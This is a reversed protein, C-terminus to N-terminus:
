KIQEILELRKVISNKELITGPSLVANAGIKSNDGVLSGFKETKTDIIQNKYKVSIQKEKRENYHNACLSGAEFNISKGLISNGIYNFHAIATHDLIISQKIESGPGIKVSNGLFVPGRLYAHAGIFSNKSIIITGKLTVGQEITVTKHIAVNNEIEYGSGLTKLHKLLINELNDIVEWPQLHNNQWLAVEPNEIYQKLDIM